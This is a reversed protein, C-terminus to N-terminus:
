WSSAGRNRSPGCAWRAMTGDGVAPHRHEARAPGGLASSATSPLRLRAPHGAGAPVTGASSHCTPTPSDRVRQGAPGADSGQDPPRCATPAQLLEPLLGKQTPDLHQVVVFALGSRAPVHRLFEELAELGGASARHWSPVHGRGRPPAGAASPAAAEPGRSGGCAKPSRGAAAQANPSEQSGPTPGSAIWAERAGRAISVVPRVKGGRGPPVCPSCRTSFSRDTPRFRAGAHAKPSLRAPNHGARPMAQGADRPVMRRANGRPAGPFRLGTCSAGLLLFPSAPRPGSAVLTFSHPTLCIVDLGFSDGQGSQRSPLIGTRYGLSPLRRHRHIPRRARAVGDCARRPDRRRGSWRPPPARCTEPDDTRSSRRWCVAV